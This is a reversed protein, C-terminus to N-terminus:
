LLIANPILFARMTLLAEHCVLCFTDKDKMFFFNPWITHNVSVLKSGTIHLYM